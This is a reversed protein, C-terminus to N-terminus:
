SVSKKRRSPTSLSRSLMLAANQVLLPYELYFGTKLLTPDILAKHRHEVTDWRRGLESVMWDFASDSLIPTDLSYYLYSHMLFHPILLNPNDLCLGMCYSDAKQM